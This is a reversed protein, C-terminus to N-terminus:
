VNEFFRSAQCSEPFRRVERNHKRRCEDFFRLTNSAEQRSAFPTCHCGYFIAIPIGHVLVEIEKRIEQYQADTVKKDPAHKDIVMNISDEIMTVMTSRTDAKELIADREAYILERQENNVKDFKLVNKRAGFNNDEIVTQAKKVFKNVTGNELSEENKM